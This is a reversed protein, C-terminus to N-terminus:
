PPISDGLVSGAVEVPEASILVFAILCPESGRNFWGHITGRQVLADGARLHVSEGEDLEMDIEGKIVVAYDVSVTRHMFPPNGPQFEVVRFVTGLPLTLGTQHAAADEDGSNDAPVSASTWLVRSAVGDRRQVLKETADIKIIARGAEDHGTV